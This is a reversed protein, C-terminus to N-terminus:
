IGLVDYVTGFDATTEGYFKEYGAETWIEFRSGKGLFVLKGSKGIGAARKQEKSFQFRGQEDVTPTSLTELLQGFAKQRQRDGLREQETSTGFILENTKEETMCILNGYPGAFISFPVGDGIQERVKAPLRTRDESLQVTHKGGYIAM